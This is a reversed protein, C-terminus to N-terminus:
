PFLRLRSSPYVTRSRRTCGYTDNAHGSCDIHRGVPRRPPVKAINEAPVLMYEQFTSRAAVIDGPFLSGYLARSCRVDRATPRSGSM